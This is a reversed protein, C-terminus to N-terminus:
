DEDDIEKQPLLPLIFEMLKPIETQAVEWTLNLDIKNYDHVLKDRMGTIAKWAIEPHAQRFEQSLRKVVEGIITIEYLIALHTRKDILFSERSMGETLEFITKCTNFIDLLYAPDRNM